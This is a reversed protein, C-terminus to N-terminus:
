RCDEEALQVSCIEARCIKLLECSEEHQFNWGVEASDFCVWVALTPVKSFNVVDNM